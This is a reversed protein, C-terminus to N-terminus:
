RKKHPYYWVLKASMFLSVSFPKAKVKVKYNLYHLINQEIAKDYAAWVYANDLVVYTESNLVIVHFGSTETDVDRLFNRVVKAIFKTKHNM